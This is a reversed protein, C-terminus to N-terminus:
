LNSVLFYEELSYPACLRTHSQAIYILCSPCHSSSCTKHSVQTDQGLSEKQSRSRNTRYLNDKQITNIDLCVLGDIPPRKTHKQILHKSAKWREIVTLRGDLEDEHGLKSHESTTLLIYSFIRLSGRRNPSSNLESAQLIKDPRKVRSGERRRPTLPASSIL